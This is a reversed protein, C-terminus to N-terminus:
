PLKWGCAFCVAAGENPDRANNYVGFAEILGEIEGADMSVEADDATALAHIKDTRSSPEGQGGERYYSLAAKITAHQRHSIDIIM